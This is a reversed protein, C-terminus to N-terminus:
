IKNMDYNDRIYDVIDNLKSKLIEDKLMPHLKLDCSNKNGFKRYKIRNFTIVLLPIEKQNNTLKGEIWKLM